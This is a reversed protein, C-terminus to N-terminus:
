RSKEILISSYILADLKSHRQKASHRLLDTFEVRTFIVQNISTQNAIQDVKFMNRGSAVAQTQRAAMLELLVGARAFRTDSCVFESCISITDCVQWPLPSLKDNGSLHWFSM